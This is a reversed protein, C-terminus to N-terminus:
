THAPEGAEETDQDEDSEEDLDDESEEGDLDDDAEEPSHPSDSPPLTTEPGGEQPAVTFTKLVKTNYSGCSQCKHYMFHYLAVSKEECDNCFIQSRMNSYEPPMKQIQMLNDIHSFLSSMDGLSKQCIPCVYSNELHANYCRTHIPHGCPMFMVPTMSTFLNDGCIPCDCDLAREICKHESFGEVPICVACIPCHRFWDPNGVRCMRCGDCHYIPKTQDDSWLKCIPCFYSALQKKCEICNQSVPQVVSCYMCMMFRTAFRDIEHDKNEENHCLRCTTWNHCCEPLIKCGRKYHRCGFIKDTENYFTPKRDSEKVSERIEKLEIEASTESHPSSSLFSGSFSKPSLSVPSLKSRVNMLDQMKRAKENPSLNQDNQIALLSRRLVKEDSDKIYAGPIDM